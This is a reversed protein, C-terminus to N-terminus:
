RHLGPAISKFPGSRMNFRQEDEINAGAAAAAAVVSGSFAYTCGQNHAIWGGGAIRQVFESGRFDHRSSQMAAQGISELDEGAPEVRPAGSAVGFLHPVFCGM